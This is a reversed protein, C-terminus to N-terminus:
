FIIPLTEPLRRVAESKGRVTLVHRGSDVASVLSWPVVPYRRRLFRGASVIVYAPAGAETRLFGEVTGVFGDHALVADGARPAAPRANRPRSPRRAPVANAQMAVADVIARPSTQQERSRSRSIFTRDLIECGPSAARMPVRM